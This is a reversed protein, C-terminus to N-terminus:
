VLLAIRAWFETIGQCGSPTAALAPSVEVGVKMVDSMGNTSVDPGHPVFIVHKKCTPGTPRIENFSIPIRLFHLKKIDVRFFM